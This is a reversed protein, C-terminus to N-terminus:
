GDSFQHPPSFELVQVLTARFTLVLVEKPLKSTKRTAHPVRQQGLWALGKQTCIGYATRVKCPLPHLFCNRSDDIVPEMTVRPVPIRPIHQTSQRVWVCIRPQIWMWEVVSCQSGVSFRSLACRGFPEPPPFLTNSTELSLCGCLPM